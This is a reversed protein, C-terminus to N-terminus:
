SSLHLQTMRSGVMAIATKIKPQASYTLVLWENNEWDSKLVRGRIVFFNYKPRRQQKFMHQSVVFSKQM